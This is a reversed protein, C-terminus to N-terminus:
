ALERVIYRPNEDVMAKILETDTTFLLGSREEY